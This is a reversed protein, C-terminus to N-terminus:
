AASETLVKDLREYSMEMGDTMGTAMAADRVERSPYEIVSIMNTVGGSEVLEVTVLATGMEGGVDGPDFTESNVIRKPADVEKFVGFFGFEKGDADNKWRWTYKGGVRVDMECVPMSWGPPGLLWRKMLTPETYARYVLARPARFSRVVKVQRDNPLTVQAKAQVGTEMTTAEMRGGAKKNTM